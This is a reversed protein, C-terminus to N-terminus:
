RAARARHTQHAQEPLQDTGWFEAVTPGPRTPFRLADAFERRWVGRGMATYWRQAHRLEPDPQRFIRWLARPRLQLVAEILKVWLFVRWAPVRPTELVQHKDDWLRLSTQIVRRQAAQGHFPTWRQPTADVSM